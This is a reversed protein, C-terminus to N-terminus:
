LLSVGGQLERLSLVSSGRMASGEEQVFEGLATVVELYWGEEWRADQWEELPWPSRSQQLPGWPWVLAGVEM